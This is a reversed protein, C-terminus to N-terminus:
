KVPSVEEQSGANSEVSDVVFLPRLFEETLHRAGVVDNLLAANLNLKDALALFDQPEISFKECLEAIHKSSESIVPMNAVNQVWLISASLRQEQTLDAGSLLEELERIIHAAADRLVQQLKHTSHAELRSAVKCATKIAWTADTESLGAQQLARAGFEIASADGEKWDKPTLWGVEHLRRVGDRSARADLGLAGIWISVVLEQWRASEFEWPFDGFDSRHARYTEVLYALAGDQNKM